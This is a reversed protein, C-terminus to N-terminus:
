KVDERVVGQPFEVPLPKLSAIPKPKANDPRPISALYKEVLREFTEEQLFVPVSTLHMLRWCNALLLLYVLTCAHLELVSLLFVLISMCLALTVSLTHGLKHVAAGDGLSNIGFVFDCNPKCGFECM